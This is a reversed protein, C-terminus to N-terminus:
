LSITAIERPITIEFDWKGIMYGDTEVDFCYRYSVSGDWGNFHREICMPKLGNIDSRDTIEGYKVDYKNTNQKKRILTWTMDDMLLFTYLTWNHIFSIKDDFPCNNYIRSMSGLIDIIPTNKIITKQEM